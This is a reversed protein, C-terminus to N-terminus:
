RAYSTNSFFKEAQFFSEPTGIDIFETKHQYAYLGKGILSPFFDNELSFPKTEPISKFLKKNLVYIGANIWGSGSSSGKEIFKQIEGNKSTVIHGYRKINDVRTLYIAAAHGASEFWKFFRSLKANVYSDGNM